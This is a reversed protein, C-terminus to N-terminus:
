PKGTKRARISKALAATNGNEFLWGEVIQAALELGCVEAAQVEVLLDDRVQELAEVRKLQHEINLRSQAYAVEMVARDRAQVSEASGELAGDLTRWLDGPDDAAEEPTAFDPGYENIVADAADHVAALEGSSKELKKVLADRQDKFEAREQIAITLDSTEYDSQTANWVKRGLEILWGGEVHTGSPAGAALHERVIREVAAEDAM